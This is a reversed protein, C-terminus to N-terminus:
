EGKSGRGQPKMQLRFLRTACRSATWGSGGLAGRIRDTNENLRAQHSVSPEQQPPTQRLKTEVSRPKQPRSTPRTM